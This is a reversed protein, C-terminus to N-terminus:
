FKMPTQSIMLIWVVTTSNDTLFGKGMTYALGFIGPKVATHQVLTQKFTISFYIVVKISNHHIM